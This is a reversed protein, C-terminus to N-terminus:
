READNPHILTRGYPTVLLGVVWHSGDSPKVTKWQALRIDHGRMKRSDKLTRDLETLKDHVSMKGPCGLFLCGALRTRQEDEVYRKVWGNGELGTIYAVRLDNGGKLELEFELDSNAVRVVLDVGRSQRRVMHGHDMLASITNPKLCNDEMGLPGGRLPNYGTLFERESDLRRFVPEFVDSVLDFSM